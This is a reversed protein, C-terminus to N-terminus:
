AEKRFVIGEDVQEFGLKKFLGRAAANEEMVHVEVLSYGQHGLEVLAEGALYTALGQRRHDPAVELDLVGAGRAPGARGMADMGRVTVSGLPAGGGRAFLEFRTLDFDGFTCAEWWTRTPADITTQLWMARRLKVQRRDVLPRFGTLDRRLVLTHDHEKYGHAPYLSRALTDSQLIGPLEAGGYLGLYFPNLPRIGGGCLVKAGHQRLYAESRELLGAAVESGACDPRVLIMCVIGTEPSVWNRAENPGFGAHPM